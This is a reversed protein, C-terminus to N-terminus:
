VHGQTTEFTRQEIVCRGVKKPYVRRERLKDKRRQFNERYEVVSTRENDEFLTLKEM